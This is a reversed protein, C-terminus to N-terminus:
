IIKNVCYIGYAFLYKLLVKEVLYLKYEFKNQKLYKM